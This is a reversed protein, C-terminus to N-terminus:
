LFILIITRTRPTHFLLALVVLLFLWHANFRKEFAVRKRVISSMSLVVVAMALIAVLGSIHVKTSIQETDRRLIYRLYHTLTHLLALYGFMKGSYKHVDHLSQLPILTSLYTTSLYHITSHMKSLFTIGMVVYSAFASLRAMAILIVQLIGEACISDQPCLVPQGQQNKMLAGDTWLLFPAKSRLSPNFLIASAFWLSVIMPFVLITM